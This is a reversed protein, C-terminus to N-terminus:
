SRADAEAEIAKGIDAPLDSRCACNKLHGKHWEVRQEFSAKKPM